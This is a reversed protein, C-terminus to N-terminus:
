AEHRSEADAAPFYTIDQVFVKTLSIFQNQPLLLAGDAQIGPMPSWRAAWVGRPWSVYKANADLAAFEEVLQWLIAYAISGKEENKFQWEETTTSESSITTSTEFTQTMKASLGEFEVGIEASLSTTETTSVGYTETLSKTYTDAYVVQTWDAITWYRRMTLTYDPRGGWWEIMVSSPQANNSVVSNSPDPDIVYFQSSNDDCDWLVNLKEKTTSVVIRPSDSPRDGLGTPKPIVPLPSGPSM